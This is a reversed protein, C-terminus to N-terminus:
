YRSTMMRTIEIWEEIDLDIHRHPPTVSHPKAELRSIEAATHPLIIARDEPAVYIRGLKRSSYAILKHCSGKYTVFGNRTGLFQEPLLTIDNTNTM